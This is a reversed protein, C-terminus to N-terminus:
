GGNKVWAAQACCPAEGGGGEGKQTGVYDDYGTTNMALMDGGEGRGGGSFADLSADRSWVAGQGREGEGFVEYRSLPFWWWLTEGYRCVRWGNRVGAMKGNGDLTVAAM